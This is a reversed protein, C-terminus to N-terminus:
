KKHKRFRETIKEWRFYNIKFITLLYRKQLYFSRLGVFLELIKINLPAKANRMKDVQQLNPEQKKKSDSYGLFSVSSIAKFDSQKENITFNKERLPSKFALLRKEYQEKTTRYLLVDDQFNVVAKIGKLTYYKCSFKSIVILKTYFKVM